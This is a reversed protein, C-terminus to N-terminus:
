AQSTVYHQVFEDETLSESKDTDAAFFGHLAKDLADFENLRMNKATYDLVQHVTLSGDHDTDM